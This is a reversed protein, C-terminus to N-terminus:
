LTYDGSTLFLASGGDTLPGHGPTWCEVDVFMVPSHRPEAKGVISYNLADISLVEVLFLREGMQCCKWGGIKALLSWDKTLKQM